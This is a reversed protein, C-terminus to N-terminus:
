RRMGAASLMSHCASEDVIGFADCDALRGLLTWQWAVFCTNFCSSGADCHLVLVLAACFQLSNTM